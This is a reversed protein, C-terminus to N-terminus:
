KVTDHRAASFLGRNVCGSSNHFGSNNSDEGNHGSNRKSGNREHLAARKIDANQNGGCGGSDSEDLGCVCGLLQIGEKCQEGSNGCRAM